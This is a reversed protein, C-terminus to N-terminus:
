AGDAKRRIAHVDPAAAARHGRDAALKPSRLTDIMEDFLELRCALPVHGPARAPLIPFGCSEAFERQSEGLVPDKDSFFISYADRKAGCLWVSPADRDFNTVADTHSRVRNIVDGFSPTPWEGYRSSLIRQFFAQMAEVAVSHWHM